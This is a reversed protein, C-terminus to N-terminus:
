DQIASLKQKTGVIELIKVGFSDEIVVVEARAILRSNVHIEVPEGALKNLEVVSGSNLKLIEELAMRTSGLVVEVRVQVDSMRDLDQPPLGAAQVAEELQMFQARSINSTAVPSPETAPPPAAETATATPAAPAESSGDMAETLREMEEPSLDDM